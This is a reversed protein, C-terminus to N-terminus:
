YFFILSMRFLLLFKDRQLFLEWQLLVMIVKGPCIMGSFHRKYFLAVPLIREQNKALPSAGNVAVCLKRRGSYLSCMECYVSVRQKRIVM